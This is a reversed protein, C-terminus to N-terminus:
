KSELIGSINWWIPLCVKRMYAPATAIVGRYIVQSFTGVWMGGIEPLWISTNACMLTICPVDKPIHKQFTHLGKTQAKTCLM